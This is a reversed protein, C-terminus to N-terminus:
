NSRLYSLIEIQNKLIEDLKINITKSYSNENVNNIHNDDNINDKKKLKNLFILDNNSDDDKLDFNVKKPKNSENSQNIEIDINRKKIIESLINEMEENNIPNDIGENFDIEDQTPKKLINMMEEKKDQFDKSIKIEVEELPKLSKTTKFVKIHEITQKILKKNKETLSLSRNNNDIFNIQQEFINKVNSLQNDPINNFTNNEYLLQWLLRKNDITNFNDYNM